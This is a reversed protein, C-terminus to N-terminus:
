NVFKKKPIKTTYFERRNTILTHLMMETMHFRIEDLSGLGAVASLYTTYLQNMTVPSNPDSQQALLSFFSKMAVNEHFRKCDNCRLRFAEDDEDLDDNDDEKIPKDPYFLRKSCFRCQVSNNFRQFYCILKILLKMLIKRERVYEDNRQECKTCKCEFNYQLRLTDQREQYSMLKWHPGYCNFVEEGETIDRTAVITLRKGDFCNRINPDCSHNLMSVRPFIGTFIRQSKLLLHLGSGNPQNKHLMLKLADTTFVNQRFDVMAHGNSILQGIHRLLLASVLLNWENKDLLDAINNTIFDQFFTTQERLYITLM